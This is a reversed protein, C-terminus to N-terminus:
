PEGGKWRKWDADYSSARYEGPEFSQARLVVEIATEMSAHLESAYAGQAATFVKEGDLTEIPDFGLEVCIDELVNGNGYPRKPDVSPAGFEVANWTMYIARMLKLHDETLTFRKSM